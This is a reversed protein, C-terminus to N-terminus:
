NAMGDAYERIQALIEDEVEVGAKRLAEGSTIEALTFRMEIEGVKALENGIVKIMPWHAEILPFDFEIDDQDPERDPDDEEVRVLTPSPEGGDGLEFDIKWYVPRSLDPCRLVLNWAAREAFDLLEPASDNIVKIREAETEKSWVENVLGALRGQGFGSGIRTQRLALNISWEVAEAITRGQVRALLRLGYQAKPSIRAGVMVPKNSQKAM